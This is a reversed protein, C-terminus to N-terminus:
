RTAAACAEPGPPRRRMGYRRRIQDFQTATMGLYGAIARDPMSGTREVIFSVEWPQVDTLVRARRLARGVDVLPVGLAGAVLPVLRLRAHHEVCRAVFEDTPEM